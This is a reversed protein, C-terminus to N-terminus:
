SVSAIPASSMSSTSASSATSSSSGGTSNSCYTFANNLKNFERFFDQTFEEAFKTAFKTAFLSLMEQISQSEVKLKPTSTEMKVLNLEKEVVELENVAAAKNTRLSCTSSAVNAVPASKPSEPTSPGQKQQQQQPQQIEGPEKRVLTLIGDKNYMKIESGNSNSNAKM